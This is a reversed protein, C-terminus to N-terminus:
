QKVRESAFFGLPRTGGAAGFGRAKIGVDGAAGPLWVQTSEKRDIYIYIIVNSIHPGHIFPTFSNEAEM